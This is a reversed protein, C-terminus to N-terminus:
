YKTLVKGHDQWVSLVDGPVWIWGEGPPVLEDPAALVERKQDFQYAVLACTLADSKDEHDLAPYGQRLMAM